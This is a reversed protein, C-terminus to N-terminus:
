GHLPGGEGGGFWAEGGDEKVGSNSEEECRRDRPICEKYVADKGYQYALTDIVTFGEGCRRM